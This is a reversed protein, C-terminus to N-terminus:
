IAEEQAIMEMSSMKDWPVVEKTAVPNWELVYQAWLM